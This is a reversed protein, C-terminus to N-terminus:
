LVYCSFSLSSEFYQHILSSHRENARSPTQVTTTKLANLCCSRFRAEYLLTVKASGCYSGFYLNSLCMSLSISKLFTMKPNMFSSDYLVESWVYTLVLMFLVETATADQQLRLSTARANLPSRQAAFMGRYLAASGAPLTNYKDHFSPSTVSSWLSGAPWSNGGPSSSLSTPM